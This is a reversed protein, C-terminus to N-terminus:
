DSHSSLSVCSVISVLSLSFVNLVTLCLYLDLISLFASFYFYFPHTFIAPACSLLAMACPFLPFCFSVYQLVCVFFNYLSSPPILFFLYFGEPRVANGPLLFEYLLLCRVSVAAQTSLQPLSFSVNQRNCQRSWVDGCPYYFRFDGVSHSAALPGWNSFLKIFM